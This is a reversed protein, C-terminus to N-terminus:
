DEMALDPDDASVKGAELVTWRFLYGGVLSLCWVIARIGKPMYRGALAFSFFPLFVGLGEAGGRFALGRRGEEVYRRGPGVSRLGLRLLLLELGAAFAQLAHLKYLSEESAQRISGLGMAAAASNASSALFTAGLLRNRRWFPVATNSLLVGTYSAVFFAPVMGVLSTLRRPIARGLRTFLGGPTSGNEALQRWLSLTSFGGLVALMWAGVSMPSRPNFRWLMRHFREPRGLDAILLLPSIVLSAFSLVRGTRVLTRDSDGGLLDAIASIFYCGGAIGGLFFYTVVEWRWHPRKLVPLGYYTSGRTEM